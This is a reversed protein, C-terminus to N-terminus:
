CYNAALGQLYVTLYLLRTSYGTTSFSSPSHIFSYLFSPCFEPQTTCLLLFLLYFFSYPLFLYFSLPVISHHSLMPLYKAETIFRKYVYIFVYLNADQELLRIPSPSTKLRYFHPSVLHLVISTFLTTPPFFSSLFIWSLALNIYGAPLVRSSLRQAITIYDM